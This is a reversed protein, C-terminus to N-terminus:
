PATPQHTIAPLFLLWNFPKLSCFNVTIGTSPPVPVLTASAFDAADQYWEEVQSGDRDWIFIKMDEGIPLGTVTFFGGEELSATRTIGRLIGLTDYVKIELNEIKGSECGTDNVVQGSISGGLPLQIDIGPTDNGGSVTVPTADNYDVGNVNSDSYWRTIFDTEQAWFRVIYEGDALGEIKYIGDGTTVPANGKWEVGQFAQAYVGAIGATGNTIKGSISGGTPAEQAEGTNISFSVLVITAIWVQFFRALSKGRKGTYM